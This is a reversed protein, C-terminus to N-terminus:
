EKTIVTAFCCETKREKESECVKLFLGFFTLVRETTTEELWTLSINLNLACNLESREWVVDNGEVGAPLTLARCVRDVM